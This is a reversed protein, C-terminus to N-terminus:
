LQGGGTAVVLMVAISIFGVFTYLGHHLRWSKRWARPLRTRYHHAALGVGAVIFLVVLAGITAPTLSLLATGFYTLPSTGVQAVPAAFVTPIQDADGQVVATGKPAGYYAVVLTTDRGGLVGETVAFGVESYEGNLINERHTESAMWAAVTSGSTPYNKALNEGAQDYRYAVDGLWKWPTVGQPSTHAWYNHAFMDQAKLRAAQDLYENRTLANLGAKQREDNTDALLQASDIHSVRGLVGGNQFVVGYVLQLVVLVALVIAIGQWRILHPRYQNGKHPVFVHKVQTRLV